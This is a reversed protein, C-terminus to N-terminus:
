KFNIQGVIGALDEYTRDATIVLTGEGQRRTLCNRGWCRGFKMSPDKALAGFGEFEIPRPIMLLTVDGVDDRLVVRQVIMGDIECDDSERIQLRDPTSMKSNDILSKLWVTKEENAPSKDFRMRGLMATLNRGTSPTGTHNRSVLGGAVIAVFFVSCMAPAYKGVIREVRRAKDIEDLRRVCAKWSAGGIVEPLRDGLVQKVNQIAEVERLAEQSEGLLKQVEVRESSSLEGDVYAHLNLPEIM